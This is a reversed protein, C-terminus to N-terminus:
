GNSKAMFYHGIILAVIGGLVRPEVTDWLSLVGFVWFITGIVLEILARQFRSM